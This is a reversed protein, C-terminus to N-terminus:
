VPEMATETTAEVGESKSKKKPALEVLRELTIDEPNVRIGVSEGVGWEGTTNAVIEHDDSTWMTIRYHTGKYVRDTITASITGSSEGRVLQVKDFPIRMIVKDGRMFNSAASCEFKGKSFSVTHHSHVEGRLENIVSIKRMVHFDEVNVSMGVESGVPWDKPNHVLYKYGPSSLISLEYHTGKFISSLVKGSTVATPDGVPLINVKEPRVIMDVMEGEKYDGVKINESLMEYGDPFVITNGNKIRGFLINSEGIFNAVFANTPHKYIEKPVGLQQIVGDEMVAILDSMTLAEEQDHTVYLFSIKLKHHMNMLELQMEKRMKLDLAGLPEDLLLVKPENVLARAIAVRQQQGGSLKAVDRHIYEELNVMRLAAEVKTRIEDKSFRRLKPKGQKDLEETPIRKLKLGFAVNGFVDLHPFLAYNQFVTNVPREHPPLESVDKGDIFIQGKSPKVFGAIMKLLTSKGCGSPGLLTVFQGRRIACQVNNVVTVGDHEKSVNRIEVINDLAEPEGARLTDAVGSM